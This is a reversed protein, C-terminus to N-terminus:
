ILRGQRPMVDRERCVGVEIPDQDPEAEAAPGGAPAHAEDGFALSCPLGIACCVAARFPIAAIAARFAQSCGVLVPRSLLAPLGGNRPGRPRLRLPGSAEAPQRSRGAQVAASRAARGRRAALRQNAEAVLATGAVTLARSAAPPHFAVPDPAGPRPLLGWLSECCTLSQPVPTPLPAGGAPWASRGGPGALLRGLSYGHM